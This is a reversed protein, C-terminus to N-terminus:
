ASTKRRVSSCDASNQGRPTPCRTPRGSRWANLSSMWWGPPRSWTRRTRCNPSTGASLSSTPTKSGRSSTAPRQSPIAASTRCTRHCRRSGSIAGPTRTSCRRERSCRRRRTSSRPCSRTNSRLSNPRRRRSRGARRPLPQWKTESSGSRPRRVAAARGQHEPGHTRERHRGRHRGRAGGAHRAGAFRRHVTHSRPPLPQPREEGLGNGASHRRRYVSGLRQGQRSRRYPPDAERHYHVSAGTFHDHSCGQSM